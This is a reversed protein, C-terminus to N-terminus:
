PNAECLVSLISSKTMMIEPYATAVQRGFHSCRDIRPREQIQPPFDLDDM